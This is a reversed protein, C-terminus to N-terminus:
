RHYKSDGWELEGDKLEMHDPNGDENRQCFLAGIGDYQTGCVDPMRAHHWQFTVSDGKQHWTGEWVMHGVLGARSSVIRESTIRDDNYFHISM